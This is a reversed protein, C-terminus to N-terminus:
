KKKLYPVIQNFILYNTLPYLLGITGFSHFFTKQFNRRNESEIYNGKMIIKPLWGMGLNQIMENKLKSSTIKFPSPLNLYLVVGLIRIFFYGIQYFYDKTKLESTYLIYFMCIINILKFPIRFKQNVIAEVIIEISFQSLHIGKIINNETINLIVLLFYVHLWLTRILFDGFFPQWIKTYRNKYSNYSFNIWILFSILAATKRKENFLNIIPNKKNNIKKLKM